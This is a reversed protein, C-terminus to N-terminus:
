VCLIWRGGGGCVCVLDNLCPKCLQYPSKIFEVKFGTIAAGLANRKFGRYIILLLCSICMMCDLMVSRRSHTLPKKILIPETPSWLIARRASLSHIGRLVSQVMMKEIIWQFTVTFQFVIIGFPDTTKLVMFPVSSIIFIKQINLPMRFPLFYYKLHCCNNKSHKFPIDALNM